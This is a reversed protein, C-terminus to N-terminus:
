LEARTDHIAATSINNNNYIHYLKLLAIINTRLLSYVRVRMTFVWVSIKYIHITIRSYKSNAALAINFLKITFTRSCVDLKIGIRRGIM